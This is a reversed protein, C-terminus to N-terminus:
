FLTMQSSEDMGDLIGMIRMKDILTGSIKCRKQLDEISLFPRKEREEVINNAVSEGLGDIATFPPIIDTDNVPTWVKSESKYLDINLYKINRASSELALKLSELQGM